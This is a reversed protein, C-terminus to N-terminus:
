GHDLDAWIADQTANYAPSPPNVPDPWNSAPQDFESLPVWHASADGYLVNIGTFHRTLVRTRSSTLDAFIAVSKMSSLRPMAFPAVPPLNALTDPIQQLPRTCYGAQINATPIQAPNPWPNDPTNFMFKTNVEAPCYLVAREKLLGAQYLLGFLVWQGGVTSSFVMGNFQKSVTRYGIPVQDNYANAYLQFALGIQRLNSLCATRNASQRAKSLAPLLLSILLAIIGIVVLLEVLTFACCAASVPAARARYKSRPM